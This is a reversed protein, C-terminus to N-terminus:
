GFSLASQESPPSCITFRASSARLERTGRQESPTSLWPIHTSSHSARTVSDAAATHVRSASVGAASLPVRDGSRSSTRESASRSVDFLTACCLLQIQESFVGSTQAAIARQHSRM